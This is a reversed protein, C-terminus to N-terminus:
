PQVSGDDLAQGARGEPSIAAPLSLSLVRGDLGEPLPLGLHNALTPAVDVTAARGSIEGAVVGSGMFVLPVERDYGYPSGHTTGHEKSQLLCDRAV